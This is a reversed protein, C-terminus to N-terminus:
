ILENKTKALGMAAFRDYWFFVDTRKKEMWM